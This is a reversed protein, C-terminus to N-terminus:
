VNALSGFHNRLFDGRTRSVIPFVAFIAIVSRKELSEIVLKM